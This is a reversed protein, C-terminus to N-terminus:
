NRIQKTLIENMRRSKLNDVIVRIAIAIRHVKAFERGVTHGAVGIPNQMIETEKFRKIVFVKILLLAINEALNM